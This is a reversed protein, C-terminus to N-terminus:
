FNFPKYTGIVQGSLIKPWVKVKLSHRGFDHNFRPNPIAVKLLMNFEERQGFLYFYNLFVRPQPRFGIQAM